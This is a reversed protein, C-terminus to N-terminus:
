KKKNGLRALEAPSLHKIDDWKLSQSSGAGNTPPTTGIGPKKQSLFLSPKETKLTSSLYEDVTMPLGSDTLLADGTRPNLVEVSGTESNYGFVGQATLATYALDFLEPNGSVAPKSWASLVADKIKSQTREAEIEALRREKEKITERLEAKERAAKEKELKVLEEYRKQEELEKQLREQERQEAAEKEAKLQAYEEPDISHLRGKIQKLEKELQRAREREKRLAILAPNEETSTSDVSDSETPVGGDVVSEPEDNLLFHKVFM